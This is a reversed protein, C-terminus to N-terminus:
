AECGFAIEKMRALTPKPFVLPRLQIIIAECCERVIISTTSLGIRYVDGIM